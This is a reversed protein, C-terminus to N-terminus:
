LSIYLSQLKGMPYVIMGAAYLGVSLGLAVQLMQLAFLAQTPDDQYLLAFASRVGKWM